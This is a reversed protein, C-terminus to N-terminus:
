VGGWREKEISKIMDKLSNISNEYAKAIGQWRVYDGEFKSARALEEAKARRSKYQSDTTSFSM